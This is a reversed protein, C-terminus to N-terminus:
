VCFSGVPLLSLFLLFSLDLCLSNVLFFMNIRTYVFNMSLGPMLKGSRCIFRDSDIFIDFAPVAM